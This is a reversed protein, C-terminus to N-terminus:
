EVGTIVFNQQREQWELTVTEDPTPFGPLEVRKTLGRVYPETADVLTVTVTARSLEVGDVLAVVEHTGAGFEAWNVLLGFGNEVDGCRDLTDGRETGAAAAIAQGDIEIVVEDAECVWGSIVGIGSQYSAPRPNELVGEIGGASPTPAPTAAGEMPALVFNQQSEQWVLHVQEGARPFDAVMFSGALGKVFEAGLTTVTVAARGLEIGDVTSRGVAVGDVLVVVEHAGDGLLNWNVLVGFGNDTDGCIAATDARETGYAAALEVVEGTAKEIEITVGEAECVWGSIVGLGSQFSRSAPNELYGAVLATQLTYRGTQRGNGRVAIVVPGAEVRASLRFNQGAGGSDASAVEEGDQWVTARTDTSGTTEVVLVGAHPATFTFYDVDSRTHFQGATRGGPQIRTARGASNGHDDRPRSGGGGGGGGSGGGGDNDRITVAVITPTGPQLEQPLAEHLHAFYSPLILPQLYQHLPYVQLALWFIEASERQSDDVTDLGISASTKGAPITLTIRFQRIDLDGITSATVAVPWLRITVDSELAASLTASLTVVGGETVPNPTAALSVTPPQGTMDLGPNGYLWFRTLSSLSSVNPASTLTNHQLNLWELSSLGSVTPPITLQNHSLDLYTLSSLGSLDPANTLQNNNLWLWALSSLGSMTPPSTLQNHSLSLHTLNSLSSLDPASTLANRHLYIEQLGTLKGLDAPIGGTLKNGPLDLKTLSTLKGLDAPMGGTLENGPLMLESVRGDSAAVGHLQGPCVSISAGWNTRTTWGNGGTATYFRELIAKESVVELSFTLSATSGDSGDTATLTYLKATTVATPTGTLAPTADDFSLGDPLELDTSADDDDDLTYTVTGSGTAPLNYVTPPATCTAGTAEWPLALILRPFTAPTFVPEATAPRALGGVLLLGVVLAPVFPSALMKRRNHASDGAHNTDCDYM